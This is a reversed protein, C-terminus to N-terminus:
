GRRVMVLDGYGDVRAKWSSPVLTTSDYQEVVAPGQIVNGSQLLERSYVQSLRERDAFIVNREETRARTNASSSGSRMKVRRMKPLSIVSTLNLSVINVPDSPSSYGYVQMHKRNFDSILGTTDVGHGHRSRKGGPRVPITLEWGQNSYQVSATRIFSVGAKDWGDAVADSYARRELISFYGMIESGDIEDTTKMVSAKYERKLDASILGLASFLGPSPPIIISGIGLSQALEAAHLPGAGGFAILDFRRPDYGREISVIRMIKAMQNNAIAIIGIAADGEEMSLPLAIKSRIAASSAYRDLPMSGSLLSKQNLRGTVMNADTITPETGGKGYCVPGPISGASVPGVRVAGGADIWAISGGGSSTEALDIFPFRVPYGSGKISRGSHTKGAAEFEHSYEVIGNQIMGAKATTGGMDFTILNERGLLRGAQLSSVVGSAPGSEIVSIPKEIAGAITNAGGDSQMIYIPVHGFEDDVLSRLRGLYASAIPYLLSNVAATSTREFEKPLPDIDSSCMVPMDLLGNLMGQAEHENRQNSYSNLFSICIVEAGAKKIEAAISEIQERSVPIEVSGDSGTRERVAFRLHRPVIPSPREVKLNYLEPRKQRGIELVDRFGETTVLAVRPWGTRTLLANTAVTTSHFLVHLQKGASKMSKLGQMVGDEPRPSSPLKLYSFDHTKEDYSVIDTFTGGIDIGILSAAM